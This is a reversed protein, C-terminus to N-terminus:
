KKKIMCINKTSISPLCSKIKIPVKYKGEIEIMSFRRNTVINLDTDAHERRLPLVVPRPHHPPVHHPVDDEGVADGEPCDAEFELFSKWVQFMEHKRSDHPLVFQPQESCQVVLYVAFDVLM